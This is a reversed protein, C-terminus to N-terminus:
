ENPQPVAVFALLVPHERYSSPLLNWPQLVVFCDGVMADKICRNSDDLDVIVYVGSSDKLVEVREADQLEAAPLFSQTSSRGATEHPFHCDVVSCFVKMSDGDILPTCLVSFQIHPVQALGAVSLAVAETRAQSM